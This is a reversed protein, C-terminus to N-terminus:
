GRPEGLAVEVVSWQLAPDRCWTGSHDKNNMQSSSDAFALADELRDFVVRPVASSSWKQSMVVYCKRKSLYSAM